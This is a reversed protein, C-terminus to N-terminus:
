LKTIKDKEVRSITKNKLPNGSPHIKKVEVFPFMSENERVFKQAQEEAESLTAVVRFTSKFDTTYLEEGAPKVINVKRQPYIAFTEIKGGKALAVQKGGQALYEEGILKKHSKAQALTVVKGVEGRPLGCM